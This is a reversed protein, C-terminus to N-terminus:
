GTVVFSPAIKNKTMAKDIPTAKLSTQLAPDLLDRFAETNTLGSDLWNDYASEPLWLPTSKRHINELAQHGKLTIVSASHAVEGSAKDTWVKYLGGFAIASGDTPELLHPNKGDQSEVFATAPIICRSTKFEVKKPLKAYNTNVSFYSKHPKLGHDTHQLYLWWIAPVVQRNGAFERVISITSAPKFNAGYIFDASNVGLRDALEASGNTKILAFNTCM